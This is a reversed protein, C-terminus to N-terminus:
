GCRNWGCAKDTCSLCGAQYIAEKGCEPCYIGSDVSVSEQKNINLFKREIWRVVYDPISSCVPLDPNDTLGSPEFRTGIHHKCLTELSIGSQIGISFTIAWTDLMGGISSGLRSARIFIEGPRGDNFLGVTLFCDTGSVKFKHTISNREAPLKTKLGTTYVSVAKTSVLVQETRCGDRYITGGKCKLEHMLRYCKSVDERTANNPLNVTKSCGLNTHAQFAAQHKVHWEPSVENAIKPKFGDLHEMVTITEKLKIGENTTRDWELAIHPEISGWCDAIIAITGTPAISTRTENRLKVDQTKDDYGKYPGKKDAMEMSANLAAINIKMMLKNGLDVAQQTDYHIGLLALMDAWGMVGLGLKRTLLAAETIDPHPFVNRDLIDDLFMTALYADSELESWKIERTKLNVYKQLNLSGLNCPEDSRNPTEGCNSVLVGGTWYNHTDNDVTIDFVECEGLGSIMKILETNRQNSRGPLPITDIFTASRAEVKEGFQVVRHNQTGIFVGNATQYAYIEKVGTSWKKTVKTWGTDSWITSGEKIDDFRRIGEPTLVTAFGPQCPNTANILGLHKNFNHRNVEDWFSMGPCGHHWASDIQENWIKNAKTGAIKSEELWKDTWSVSINFSELSKPDADKSHIFELIDDHYVPLMGMQALDRKGGQTILQRVGHYDRLVAVPGCAKRHVSKILSGKARINGFWYGVGGGAKAVAIAKDRTAVISDRTDRMNDAVDFVFCASLTCGNNLGANFLTPSNPLFKLDMMLNFYDENGGSTRRFMGEVSENNDLYRAKLITLANNSIVASM